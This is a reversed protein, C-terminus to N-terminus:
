EFEPLLKKCHGCWPAYFEVFWFDDSNYVMEEFNSETLTIVGGGGGSNSGGSGRSNSGSNSSRSGGKGGLRKKAISSM